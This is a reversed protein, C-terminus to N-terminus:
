KSLVRCPQNFNTNEKVFVMTIDAVKKKIEKIFKKQQKKSLETLQFLWNTEGERGMQCIEYSVKPSHTQVFNGIDEMSKHDIGTGKSIFSIVLRYKGTKQETQFQASMKGVSFLLAIAFFINKM